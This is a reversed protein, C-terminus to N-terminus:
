QLENGFQTLRQSAQKNLEVIKWYDRAISNDLVHSLLRTTVKLELPHALGNQATRLLGSSVELRDSNTNQATKM